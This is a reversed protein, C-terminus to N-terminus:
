FIEMLKSLEIENPAKYLHSIHDVLLIDFEKKQIKEMMSNLAVRDKRSGIDIYFVLNEEKVGFYSAAYNIISKKHEEIRKIDNVSYFIYGVIRKGEM